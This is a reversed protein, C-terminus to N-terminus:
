SRFVQVEAVVWGDVVGAYSRGLRQLEDLSRLRGFAVWCDPRMDSCVRPWAM